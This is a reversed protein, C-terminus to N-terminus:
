LDARYQVLASDRLSERRRGIAMARLLLWLKFLVSFGTDGCDIAWQADRLLHALCMQWREAHGRQSGLADCAWVGPRVRSFVAAKTVFVWEWWTKGAVRM